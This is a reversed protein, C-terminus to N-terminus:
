LSDAQRDFNKVRQLYRIVREHLDLPYKYGLHDGVQIAVRRFLEITAFLAQWNDEIDAGVYTKELESWIEPPLHRKLGRGYDGPKVSWQHDIEVLWELMTRLHRFKMAHDMNYKAAILDDRWLHKAIYTAEHFFEQVANQYTAETPPSPIFAKFTPPGLGDALRDKDLLVAYGLDLEDVLKSRTVVTRMTDLSWLTFDIKTGDEYQTIYAFKEGGYAEEIPDRYVVLVTGFDELWSRDYSFPQIDTVVLIVDYDSLVDVPASPNVRSSTLLVARVAPWGEAWHVLREIM